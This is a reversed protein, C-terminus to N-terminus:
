RRLWQTEGSVANILLVPALLFGAARDLAKAPLAAGCLEKPRGFAEDVGKEVLSALSPPAESLNRLNVLRLGLCGRVRREVPTKGCNPVCRSESLLGLRFRNGARSRSVWLRQLMRGRL